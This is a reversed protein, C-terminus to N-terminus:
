RLTGVDMLVGDAVLVEIVTAPYQDRGTLIDATVAAALAAAAACAWPPTPSIAEGCGGERGVAAPGGAPTPDAHSEGGRLPVRDIRAVTGGRQLCVSLAERELVRGATLVLATAPGNGTADVVLDYSDFLREILDVSTADDPIREIDSVDIGHAAVRDAVADVKPRGVDNRGVLHRICNGPRIRAADVLAIAGLGSRILLDALQSGVAGVGVIAVRKGQLVESDFGARLRLTAEDTHATTAAVIELPDRSKVHLGLSGVHGQRSYRVVIVKCTGNEVDSRLKVADDAELRDLLDDFEYLPEALDGVDLVVAGRSRVRRQKKSAQGLVLEYTSNAGSVVMCHRGLYQELAGHLIIAASRPWYRELDLDPPDDPWGLATQRHWEQIRELVADASSWPLHAAEHDSWLCFAGNRERHWSRGGEGGPTRVLPKAIPFDAPVVVEHEVATGDVLVEGVLTNKGILKFGRAVLAEAIEERAAAISARLDSM